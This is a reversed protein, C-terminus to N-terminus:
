STCIFVYVKNVYLYINFLHYCIIFLSLHDLMIYSIRLRHTDPTDQIDTTQAVDTDWAQKSDSTQDQETDQILATDTDPATDTVPATDTQNSGHAGGDQQIVQVYRLMNEM